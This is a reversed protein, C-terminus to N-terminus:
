KVFITAAVSSIVADNVLEVKVQNKYYIAYSKSNGQRTGCVYHDGGSIALDSPGISNPINPFIIETGNKWLRIQNVSNSVKDGLIYIDSGDTVIKKAEYCNAEVILNSTLVNNKWCKANFSIRGVAYIDNNLVLVDNATANTIGNTLNVEVGNKWYKAYSETGNRKYGSVYVNSGSVTVSTPFDRFASSSSAGLNTAFGNKWIKAVGTNTTSNYQTGVIYVDNGVVTIAKAQEDNLGDSLNVAVGNKWLKAIKKPSTSTQDYGVAYVDNDIVSIDLIEAYGTGDSLSSAVGNKWLTAVWKFTGNIIYGGVYVDKSTTIPLDKNETVNEKTCNSVSLSLSLLLASKLLFRSTKLFNLKM